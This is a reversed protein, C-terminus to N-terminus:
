VSPDAVPHDGVRRCEGGSGRPPCCGDTLERRRRDLEAVLVTLEARRRVIEDEIVRTERSAPVDIATM